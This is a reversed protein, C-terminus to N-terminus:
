LILPWCNNKALAVTGPAHHSNSRLVEYKRCCDHGCGGGGVSDQEVGGPLRRPASVSTLLANSADPPPVTCALYPGDPNSFSSIAPPALASTNAEALM